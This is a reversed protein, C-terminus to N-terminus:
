DVSSRAVRRGAGKDVVVVQVAELIQEYIWRKTCAGSLALFVSSRRETEELHLKQM